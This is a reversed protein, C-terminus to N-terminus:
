ALVLLYLSKGDGLFSRQVKKDRQYKERLGARKCRMCASSYRCTTTTFYFEALPLVEGCKSCAKRRVM